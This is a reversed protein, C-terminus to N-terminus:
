ISGSKVRIAPVDLFTGDTWSALQFHGKGDNLYLSDPEGLEIM